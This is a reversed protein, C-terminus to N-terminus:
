FWPFIPFVVLFQFCGYDDAYGPLIVMNKPDHAWKKFMELSTGAHLMGPSAFLVMGGPQDGASKDFPRIYKYDFLNRISPILPREPSHLFGHHKCEM